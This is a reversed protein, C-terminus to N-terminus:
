YNLMVFLVFVCFLCFLIFIILWGSGVGVVGECCDCGVGKFMRRGVGVIIFGGLGRRVAM